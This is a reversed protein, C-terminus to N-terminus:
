IDGCHSHRVSLAGDYIVVTVTVCVFLVMIDGCHRHRVSVAGDYIVVTVTVFVLLV